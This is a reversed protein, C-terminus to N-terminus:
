DDDILSTSRDQMSLRASFADGVPGRYLTLTHKVGVKDMSRPLSWPILQVILTVEGDDHQMLTVEVAGKKSGLQATLETSAGRTVKAGPNSDPWMKGFLKRM